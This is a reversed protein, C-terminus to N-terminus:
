SGPAGPTGTVFSTPAPDVVTVGMKGVELVSLGREVQGTPLLRFVGDIGAFGNADTLNERVYSKHGKALVAALATADYALTALRPPRQGYVDNFRKEFGQRAEPAASAYWGGVLSPERGIGPEDWQGTGLFRVPGPDIDFFPLLPAVEKLRQGGEAILIAQFPLEEVAPPTRGDKAAAAAERAAAAQAHRQDFNSLRKITDSVDRQTPQYRAVRTVDAGAKGAADRMAQEVMDGNGGVPALLALHTLGRSAAYSVVRAVQDQPQFGMVWTGGTPAHTDAVSADNSFSLVPVAGAVPAVAKADVGYVPGILLTAGAALADRAAAVSGEPTSKTDRILLQFHSDATDFLAMQAAQQMAEGLSAAKGTLPLLLAVRVAEGEPVPAPAATPAPTTEPQAQAAQQAAQPPAKDPAAQQPAQAQPRPVAVTPQSACGALLLPVALLAAASKAATTRAVRTKAAM